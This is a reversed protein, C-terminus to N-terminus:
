IVKKIKSTSNASETDEEIIKRIRQLKISSPCTSKDCGSGTTITGHHPDTKEVVKGHLKSIRVANVISVVFGALGLVLGTIAIALAAIAIPKTHDGAATEPPTNGFM